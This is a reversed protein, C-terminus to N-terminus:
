KLRVRIFKRDYGNPIRGMTRTPISDNMGNFALYNAFVAMAAMTQNRPETSWFRDDAAQSTLHFGGLMYETESGPLDLTGEPDVVVFAQMGASGRDGIWPSGPTISDVSRQAGDTTIYIFLPKNLAAAAAAAKGVRLGLETDRTDGTVRTGDHYDFGGMTFGAGGVNDNLLNHVYTAFLFDASSEPTNFNIGLMSSSIPNSRPDENTITPTSNKLAQFFPVHTSFAVSAGFASEMSIGTVSDRSGIAPLFTGIRGADRVGHSIDFPNTSTDDQSAVPVAFVRIKSNYKLPIAARMGRLMGSNSFWKANYETVINSSTAATSGQGILSYSTLLSGDTTIPVLNAALTAGGQPNITLFPITAKTVQDKVTSYHTNLAQNGAVDTARITIKATGLKAYDKAFSSSCTAFPDDDIACEVKAIGSAQVKPSGPLDAVDFEATAMKPISNAQKFTIVSQIPRCDKDHKLELHRM